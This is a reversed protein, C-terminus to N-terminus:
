ANGPQHTFKVAQGTAREVEAIFLSFATREASNEPEPFTFMVPWGGTEEVQIGFIITYQVILESILEDDTM